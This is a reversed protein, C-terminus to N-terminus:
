SGFTKRMYAVAANIDADSLEDDGARPPMTVEAGPKEIGNIVSQALEADSKSWVAPANTFDPVGEMGEAGKGDEGHCAVCVNDFTEQGSAFAPMNLILGGLIAFATVGLKKM